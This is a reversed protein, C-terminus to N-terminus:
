WMPFTHEPTKPCLSCSHFRNFITIPSAHPFPDSKGQLNWRGKHICINFYCKSPLDCSPFMGLYTYNPSSYLGSVFCSCNWIWINLAYIYHNDLRIWFVLHVVYLVQVNTFKRMQESASLLETQMYRLTDLNENNCICCKKSQVLM